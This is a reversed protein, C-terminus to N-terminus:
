ARHRQLARGGAPGGRDPPSAVGRDRRRRRDRRDFRPGPGTPPARPAAQLPYVKRQRERQRRAAMVGAVTPVPAFALVVAAMGLHLQTMAVLAAALYCASPVVKFLIEAFAGVSVPVSEQIAFLLGGTGERDYSSLPLTEFREALERRLGFEMDARVDWTRGALWANIGAKGAQLAALVGVLVGLIADLRRGAIRDLTAKLVLPEVAGLIAGGLSVAVVAAIFSRRLKAVALARRALPILSPPPSRM